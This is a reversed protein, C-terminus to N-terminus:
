RSMFTLIGVITPMKVNILLFIEHEASNLVFRTKYGQSWSGGFNNAIDQGLYCIFCIQSQGMKSPFKLLYHTEVLKVYFEM